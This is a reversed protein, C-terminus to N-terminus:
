RYIGEFIEQGYHFVKATPSLSLPGYPVLEPTGWQGQKFDCTIMVPALTTGFGIPNPLEFSKLVDPVRKDIKLKMIQEGKSEKRTSLPFVGFKELPNNRKFSGNVDESCSLRPM